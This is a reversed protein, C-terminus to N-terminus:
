PQYSLACRFGRYQNPGEADTLRRASHHDQIRSYSWAGGRMIQIGTSETPGQPNVVGDALTLYYNDDYWDNVWEWVNGSMDLAGVWSAGEPFSGVPATAVYGDCYAHDEIAYPDYELEDDFNGKACDFENGWPYLLSDPGRAAYEWEAETPLRAGRSECHALSDAWDICV